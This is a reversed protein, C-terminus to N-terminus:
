HVEQRFQLSSKGIWNSLEPTACVINGYGWDDIGVFQDTLKAPWKPRRCFETAVELNDRGWSEVKRGEVRYVVVDEEM